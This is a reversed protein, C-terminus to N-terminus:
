NKEGPRQGEGAPSKSQGPGSGGEGLREVLTGELVNILPQLVLLEGEKLGNIILTKENVKQININRKQLRDEDIVFVEDSGPAKEAAALADQMSLVVTAGPAKFNSDRTLVISTRGPLARGISDWTKRGMIIPHGMTIRKFRKLDGPLRWPLANGKGIIGGAAMAVIVSLTM